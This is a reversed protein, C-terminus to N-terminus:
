RDEGATTLAVVPGPDAIDALVVDVGRGPAVAAVARTIERGLAPAPVGWRSRVQVTIRDESVRIGDIQRGPLYCAVPATPTSCLDDVGSCRRVAAAVADVDVGFVVAQAPGTGIATGPLSM